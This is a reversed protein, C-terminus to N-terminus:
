YGAKIADAETMYRGQKTKGYWHHAQNTICVRIRISGCWAEARRLRTINPRMPNRRQLTAGPQPRHLLASPAHAVVNGAVLKAAMWFARYSSKANKM